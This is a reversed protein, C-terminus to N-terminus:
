RRQGCTSVFKLYLQNAEMRRLHLNSLPWITGSNAILLDIHSTQSAIHDYASQLSEKSTVDGKIPIISGNIAMAATEELSRERRGIIFVKLAGNADLARAM